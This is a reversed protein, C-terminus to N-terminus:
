QPKNWAPDWAGGEQIECQDGFLVAEHDKQAEQESNFPGHHEQTALAEENTMNIDPVTCWYYLLEGGSAQAAFTRVCVVDGVKPQRRRENRNM